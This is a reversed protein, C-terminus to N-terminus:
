LNTLESVPNFQFLFLFLWCVVGFKFSFYNLIDSLGHWIPLLAYSFWLKHKFVELIYFRRLSELHWQGKIPQQTFTGMVHSFFWTSIRGLWKCCSTNYNFINMWKPITLQTSKIPKYITDVKKLFHSMLNKIKLKQSGRM